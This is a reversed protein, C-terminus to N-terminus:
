FFKQDSVFNPNEFM